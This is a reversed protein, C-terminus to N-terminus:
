KGEWAIIMRKQLRRWIDEDGEEGNEDALLRMFCAAAEDYTRHTYEYNNVTLLGGQMANVLIDRIARLPEPHHETVRLFSRSWENLIDRSRLLFIAAGALGFNVPVLNNGGSWASKRDIDILELNCVSILNEWLLNLDNSNNQFLQLCKPFDAFGLFLLGTKILVDKKLFEEFDDELESDTVKMLLASFGDLTPQTIAWLGPILQVAYEPQWFVNIQEATTM